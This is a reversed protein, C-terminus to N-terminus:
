PCTVTLHFPSDTLTTGTKEFTQVFVDNGTDSDADGSVSILGQVPVATGTDGITAQYACGSVDKSFIVEYQGSSAVHDVTVSGVAGSSRVVVGPASVVAWNNQGQLDTISTQFSNVQTQLTTILAEDAEVRDELGPLGGAMSEGGNGGGGGGKGHGHGAFAPSTLTAALMLVGTFAFGKKM